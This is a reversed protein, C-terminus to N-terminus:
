WHFSLFAAARLLQTAGFNWAPLLTFYFFSFFVKGKLSTVAHTRSKKPTKKQKTRKRETASSVCNGAFLKEKWFQITSILHNCCSFLGLAHQVISNLLFLLVHTPFTFHYISLALVNIKYQSFSLTDALPEPHTYNLRHKPYCDLTNCAMINRPPM